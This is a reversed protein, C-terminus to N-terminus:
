NAAFYPVVSRSLLSRPRPLGGGTSGGRRPCQRPRRNSQTSALPQRRIDLSTIAARVKVTALSLPRM